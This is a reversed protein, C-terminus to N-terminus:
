KFTLEQGYAYTGSKVTEKVDFMFLESQVTFNLLNSEEYLESIKTDYNLLEIKEGHLPEYVFNILNNGLHDFTKPIVFSFTYSSYFSIIIVKKKQFFFIKCLKEM